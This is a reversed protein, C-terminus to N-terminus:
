SSVRKQWRELSEKKKLADGLELFSKYGTGAKPAWMNKLGEYEEDSYLGKVESAKLHIGLRTSQIGQGGEIAQQVVKAAADVLALSEIRDSGDKQYVLRM